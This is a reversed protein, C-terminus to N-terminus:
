MQTSPYIGKAKCVVDISTSTDTLVDSKFYVHFSVGNNRAIKM